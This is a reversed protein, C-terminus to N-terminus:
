AESQMKTQDKHLKRLAQEAQESGLGAAHVWCRIATNQNIPVCIGENWCRGLLYHADAADSKELKAILFWAEESAIISPHAHYFRLMEFQAFVNGSQAHECAAAYYAYTEKDLLLGAMTLPRFAEFAQLAPELAKREALSTQLLQANMECYANKSMAHELQMLITSLHRQERRCTEKLARLKEQNKEGCLVEMKLMRGVMDIAASQAAAEAEFSKRFTESKDIAAQRRRETECIAYHCEDQTLYGIQVNSRPFCGREMRQGAGLWIATADTLRENEKKDELKTHHIESFYHACEHMIIAVVTDFESDEPKLIIRVKGYGTVANQFQGRVEESDERKQDLFETEIRVKSPDLRYHRLVQDTVSTVAGPDHAEYTLREFFYEFNQVRFEPLPAGLHQELYDLHESIDRRNEDKPEDHDPIQVFSEREKTNRRAARAVAIVLMIGAYLIVALLMKVLLNEM